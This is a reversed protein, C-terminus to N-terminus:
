NTQKLEFYYFKLGLFNQLQEISVVNYYNNDFQISETHGNRIYDRCDQKVKIYTSNVNLLIKADIIFDPKINAKHPSIIIAPFIGSVPIYTVDTIPTSAEGYGPLITTAPNNIVEIPRKNIIINNVAMTDYLDGFRGTILDTTAQSLLSPM